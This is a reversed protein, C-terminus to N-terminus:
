LAPEWKSDPKCVLTYIDISVEWNMGGEEGGTIDVHGNETDM